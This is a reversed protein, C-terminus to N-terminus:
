ASLQFIRPDLIQHATAVAYWFCWAGRRNLETSSSVVPIKAEDESTIVSINM